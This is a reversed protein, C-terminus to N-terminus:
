AGYVASADVFLGELDYAGYVASAGVVWGELGYARYIASAGVFLGELGYTGYSRSRLGEPRDRTRSRLGASTGGSVKGFRRRLASRGAENSPFLQASRPPFLRFVEASRPKM